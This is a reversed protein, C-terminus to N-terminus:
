MKGAAVPGRLERSRRAKQVAARAKDALGTSDSRGGVGLGGVMRQSSFLEGRRGAPNSPADSRTPRTDNM